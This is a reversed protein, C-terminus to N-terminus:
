YLEGNSETHEKHVYQKNLCAIQAPQSFTQVIFNSYVPQILSSVSGEVPSAM